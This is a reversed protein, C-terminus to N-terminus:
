RNGTHLSREVAFRCTTLAAKLAPLTAEFRPAPVAASIAHPPLGPVLVPIGIACIGAAHEERDYSFGDRRIEALETLLAPLSTVTAPTLAMLGRRLLAAVRGDEMGALIAKGNAMAHLPSARDTVPVVRLEQDSVIRDLFVVERGRATAIDVTERTAAFLMELHARARAAVDLPVTRALALLGPGRRVGGAGIEVLSEAALAEVIRQVTSRPLSTAIALRGLSMGEPTLARLIAAARAIVQIGGEREAQSAVRSTKVM